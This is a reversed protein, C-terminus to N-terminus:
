MRWTNMIKHRHDKQNYISTPDRNMLQSLKILTPLVLFRTVQGIWSNEGEELDIGLLVFCKEFAVFLSTFDYLQKWENHLLSNFSNEISVYWALSVVLAFSVRVVLRVIMLEPLFTGHIKLTLRSIKVLVVLGDLSVALFGHLWTVTRTLYWIIAVRQNWLSIVSTSSQKELHVCNGPLIEQQPFEFM